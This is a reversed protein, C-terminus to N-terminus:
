RRARGRASSVSQAGVIVVLMGIVLWALGTLEPVLYPQAVIPHFDTCSGVTYPSDVFGDYNSDPTLWDSWCNGHTSSNWFNGSTSYAQSHYSTGSGHNDVFTNNWIRNRYGDHVTIGYNHNYAIGNMWVENDSSYRLAAGYLTNHTLSNNYISNNHSYGLLIGVTGNLLSHDSITMEQCNALIIQGAGLPVTGGTQDKVFVVPRGNVLNTDDIEHLNWHALATGDVYVGDHEMVNGSVAASSSNFLAVGAVGNRSLVNDTVSCGDSMSIVIGSGGNNSCLNDTLTAGDSEYLYIANLANGSCNNESVAAFECGYIYMGAAYNGSCNNRWIILNTCGSAWLGEEHDFTATILNYSVMVDDCASLFIGSGLNWACTNNTVLVHRSSLARLGHCPDYGIRAYTITRTPECDNESMIVNECESVTISATEGGLAYVGECTNNHILVYNSDRVYLAYASVIHLYNDLVQSHNCSHLSVRGGQCTNNAFVFGECGNSTLSGSYFEGGSVTLNGCSACDVSDMYFVCGDAMVRDSSVITMGNVGNWSILSDELSIDDSGSIAIGPGTNYSCNLERLSIGRSDLISVGDMSNGACTANIVTNNTARYLYMGHYGCSYCVVNEALGNRANFFKMGSDSSGNVYCDQIVFEVTTNGIMIGELSGVADILYGSIVYPNGANGDGQWGESAALAAFEADSDIHIPDHPSLSAPIAPAPVTRDPNVDLAELLGLSGTVLVGIILIAAARGRFGATRGYGRNPRGAISDHVEEVPGTGDILPREVRVRGSSRNSSQAGRISGVGNRVM